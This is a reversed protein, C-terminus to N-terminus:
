DFWPDLGHLPFVAQRTAMIARDVESHPNYGMDWPQHWIPGEAPDRDGMRRPGVRGLLTEVHDLWEEPVPETLAVPQHAAIATLHTWTRPVVDVVEYGGGGLAVWRGECVEHSLRHLAEAAARQADVSLALHALPDQAHTDCGHQTVLVDPKFSRVLPLATAHLARLWASDGTGPPLAVNVAEGEASPGGIEGAFGTGPFLARGSEHLSITLVRPDDWFVREVGDGHHVDVDVYAVRKAGHDLLWQIGVAIDNYICFGSANGPMAHHLGGCFNVGHAARGEWVDACVTRTGEVVRASSEHMGAFAPDDETGIGRSGDASGPDESAARVAAVYAPEHVTELVADDPVEPSFVEVGDADFVGLAECLRATLDLRVPSMPHGPGFDYATFGPDWVVRVQSPM